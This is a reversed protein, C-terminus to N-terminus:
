FQGPPPEPGLPLHEFRFPIEHTELGDNLAIRLGLNKPLEGESLLSFQVTGDMQSRGVYIGRYRHGASDVAEMATVAFPNEAEVTINVVGKEQQPILRVGAEQLLPHSLERGPSDLVGHLTLFRRTRATVLSLRGTIDDIANPVVEPHQFLLVAQVGDPPLQASYGSPEYPELERVAAQFTGFGEAQVTLDAGGARATAVDYRGLAVTQIAKPGTLDIAVELNRPLPTGQNDLHTMTSWRARAALDIGQPPAEDAKSPRWTALAKQADTIDVNWEPIRLGTFRYNVTVTEIASHLTVDVNVGDPISGEGTAFRYRSSGEPLLERDVWIGDYSRWYQSVAIDDLLHGSALSFVMSETGDGFPSRRFRADFGAAQLDEDDTPFRDLQKLDPISKRVQKGSVLLQFSGSLEEIESPGDTPFHFALPIIMQDEPLSPWGRRDVLAMERVPDAMFTAPALKLRGRDTQCTFVRHKGYAVARRANEGRLILYTQLQPPAKVADADLPLDSETWAMAAHLEAGDDLGELFDASQATALLRNALNSQFNSEAIPKQGWLSSLAPGIAAITDATPPPLSSSITAISGDATGQLHYVLPNLIEGIPAFKERNRGLEAKALEIVDRSAEVLATAQAPSDCEFRFTLDVGESFTAELGLRPVHQQIITLFSALKAHPESPFWSRLATWDRPSVAIVVDAESDIFDFRPDPEGARRKMAARVEREAGFLLMADNPMYLAFDPETPNLAIRRFYIAEAHERQSFEPHERIRRPNLSNGSYVVGLLSSKLAGLTGPGNDLADPDLESLGRLGFAVAYVVPVKVGFHLDLTGDHVEIGQTKMARILPSQLISMLRVRVVAEVEEGLYTTLHAHRILEDVELGSEDIYDYPDPSEIPRPAVTEKAPLELPLPQTGCGPLLLCQGWLFVVSTALGRSWAFMSHVHAM